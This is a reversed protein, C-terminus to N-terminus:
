GGAAASGEASASASVSVSVEVQVDIMASIRQPGETHPLAASIWPSPAAEHLAAGTDHELVREDYHVTLM